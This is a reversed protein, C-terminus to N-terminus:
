PEPTMWRNWPPPDDPPTVRPEVDLLASTAAVLQLAAAHRATADALATTAADAAGSADALMVAAIPIVTDVLVSSAEGLSSLSAACTGLAGSRTTALDLVAAAATSALRAADLERHAIGEIGRARSLLATFETRSALNSM